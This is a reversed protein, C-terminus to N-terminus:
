GLWRSTTARAPPTAEPSGGLVVKGVDVAVSLCFDDQYADFDITVRGDGDFTTDLSGDRNLRVAAFDIGTGDNYTTGGVILKGDAQLAVSTADAYNPFPVRVTGGDGFGADLSGDTNHRVIAFVATPYNSPGAVVIKGDEQVVMSQAFDYPSGQIDITVRGDGGFTPDLEGASLLTRSEMQEVCPRVAARLRDAALRRHSIRWIARRSTPRSSTNFMVFREPKSAFSGLDFQAQARSRVSVDPWCISSTTAIV